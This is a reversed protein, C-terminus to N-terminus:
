EQEIVLEFLFMDYISDMRKSKKKKYTWHRNRHLLKFIRVSDEKGGFIENDFMLEKFSQNAQKKLPSLFTKLQWIISADKAQM